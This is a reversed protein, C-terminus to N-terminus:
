NMYVDLGAGAIRDKTLAAKLARQDVSGGRATSM